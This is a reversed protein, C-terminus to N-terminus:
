GFAKKTSRIPPSFIGKTKKCTGTTAWPCARSLTLLGSLSSGALSARGRILELVDPNKKHPM